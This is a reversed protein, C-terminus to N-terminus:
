NETSQQDAVYEIGNRAIGVGDDRIAAVGDADGWQSEEPDIALLVRELVDLEGDSPLARQYDYAGQIMTRVEEFQARSDHDVNEKFRELVDLAMKVEDDTIDTMQTM